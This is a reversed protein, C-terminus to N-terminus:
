GFLQQFWLVIGDWLRAFFGAPEVAQLVELPVEGVPEGSRSLMIRGVRDGVTLPAELPADVEIVREIAASSRPLTMVTDATVGLVVQETQGKWVRSETLPIGAELPRVTEYFRFGYNLLSRTEAKRSATSSSGMVVSILRM